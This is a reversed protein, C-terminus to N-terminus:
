KAKKKTEGFSFMAWLATALLVATDLLAVAFMNFIGILAFLVSLAKAAFLLIVGTKAKSAVSKAIKLAEPILESKGEPIIVAGTSQKADGLIIRLDALSAAEIDSGAWTIIGLKDDPEQNAAIYQIREYKDRPLCDAYVENIGVEKGLRTASLTNDGTILAVSSIGEKRLKSVAERTGPKTRDEFDIRGVYTKGVAVYVSTIPSPTIDGRVGLREMLELNGVAVIIGGQLQVINGSGKEERHREIRALDVNVGAYSKIANALPHQSFAEAYAALYLLQNDSLRVPYVGSIMYTGDTVTGTKNFIVSTLGAASNISKADSFLIGSKLAKGKGFDYILVSLAITAIPCAAVLITLGRHVWEATSDGGFILSILAILVAAAAMVPTFLMTVLRIRGELVDDDNDFGAGDTALRAEDSFWQMLNDRFMFGVDALILVLVADAPHGILASLLAAVSIILYESIFNKNTIDKVANFFVPIGCLAVAAITLIVKVWDPVFGMLSFVLCVLGGLIRIASNLYPSGSLTKLFNSKGQEDAAGEEGEEDAPDDMFSEFDPFSEEDNYASDSITVNFPADEESEAKPADFTEDTNPSDLEATNLENTDMDM